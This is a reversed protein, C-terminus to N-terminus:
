CNMFWLDVKLKKELEDQVALLSKQFRKGAFRVSRFLPLNDYVMLRLEYPLRYHFRAGWEKCIHDNYVRMM